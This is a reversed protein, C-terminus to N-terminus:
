EGMGLRFSRSHVQIQLQKIYGDQVHLPLGTHDFADERIRADEITVGLFPFVIPQHSAFVPPPYWELSQNQAARDQRRDFAGSFERPSGIDM